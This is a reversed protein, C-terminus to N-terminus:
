KSLPLIAKGGKTIVSPKTLKNFMSPTNWEKGIPISMANEYRSSNTYPFPLKKTIYKSSKKIAKQNIIVNNLLYDKRTKPDVGEVHKLIVKKTPKNSWGGWGPLTVDITKSADEEIVAQKEMMFEQQEKEGLDTQVAFAREILEQQRKEEDDIEEVDSYNQQTTTLEPTAQIISNKTQKVKKPKAGSTWPNVADENMDTELEIEIKGKSKKNGKRNDKAVVGSEDDKNETDASNKDSTEVGFKKRGVIKTVNQQKDVDNAEGNEYDDRKPDAQGEKNQMFKMSFLKSKKSNDENDSGRDGDVDMQNDYGDSDDSSANEEDDRQEGRKSFNVLENHKELNHQLSQTVGEIHKGFQKMKTAWKGHNKHRMTMRELARQREIKETADNEDGDSNGDNDDQEEMEKLKQKKLIKRFKKSKIKAVRKAKQEQRFLLERNRRLERIKELAKGSTNKDEDEDGDESESGYENASKKAMAQEEQEIRLIQAKEEYKLLNRENIKNDVLMRQIEAEFGSASGIVFGESLNAGEKGAESSRGGKKAKKKKSGSQELPYEVTDMANNRDVMPQWLGVSQKTLKYAADREYKQKIQIPKPEELVMNKKSEGEDKKKGLPIAKGLSAKIMEISKISKLNDKRSEGEDGEDDESNEGQKLQAKKEEDRTKLNALIDSFSIRSEQAIRQSYEIDIDDGVRKIRNTKEKEKAGLIEVTKKGLESIDEENGEEEEEESNDQAEADSGAVNKFIESIEDDVKVANKSKGKGDLGGRPKETLMESLFVVGEEEEGFEDDEGEDEESEEKDEQRNLANRKNNKGGKGFKFDEFREEDSSNFAEDSDIEEEEIEQRDPESEETDDDEDRHKRKQPKSKWSGSSSGGRSSSGGGRNQKVFGKRYM